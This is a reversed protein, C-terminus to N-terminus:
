FYQLAFLVSVFIVISIVGITLVLYKMSLARKVTNNQQNESLITKFNNMEHRYSIKQEQLLQDSNQFQIKRSDLDWRM